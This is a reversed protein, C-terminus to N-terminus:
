CTIKLIYFIIYTSSHCVTIKSSIKRTGFLRPSYVGVYYERFHMFLEDRCYM